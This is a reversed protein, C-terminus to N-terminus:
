LLYSLSERERERDRQKRSELRYTQLNDKLKAYFTCHVICILITVVNTRIIESM